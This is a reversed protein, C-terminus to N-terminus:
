REIGATVWFNTPVAAPVGSALLWAPVNPSRFNLLRGSPRNLEGESSLTEEACAISRGETGIWDRKSRGVIPVSHEDPTRHTTPETQTKLLSPRTKEFGISYSLCTSPSWLRRLKDTCVNRFRKACLTADVAGTGWGSTLYDSRVSCNGLPRRFIVVTTPFIQAFNLRL